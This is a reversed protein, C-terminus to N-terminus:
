ALTLTFPESTGAYSQFSCNSFLYQLTEQSLVDTLNDCVGWLVM